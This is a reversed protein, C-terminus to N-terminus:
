GSAGERADAAARLRVELAGQRRRAAAADAAAETAAIAAKATPALQRGAVRLTVIAVMRTAPRM